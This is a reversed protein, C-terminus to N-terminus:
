SRSFCVTFGTLEFRMSRSRWIPLFLLVGLLLTAMSIINVINALNQHTIAVFRMGGMSFGLAGACLAPSINEKLANRYVTTHEIPADELMPQDNDTKDCAIWLRLGALPVM